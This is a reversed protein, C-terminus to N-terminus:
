IIRPWVGEGVLEKIGGALMVGRLWDRAEEVSKAAIRVVGGTGGEGCLDSFSWALSPPRHLQFQTSKDCIERLYELLKAVHPGYMLVTAYVHYPALKRAIGSMSANTRADTIGMTGARREDPEPTNTKGHGNPASHKRTSTALDDRLIMRERMIRRKGVLVENLSEYSEMQWVEGDGGETAYMRGRGSNVWDLILVSATGEAGQEGNEDPLVFRQAQIYSSDKYPSISDPLVLAFAGPALTVLMRQTTVEKGKGKDKGTDGPGAPKTQGALGAPQRLLRSQPRIGPRNRFVKTSGQTLLILGGRPEVDIQLSILDGAVLGGGYALTYALAVHDPQSPLPTPSLLKLPYTARLTSFRAKLGTTSLTLHGSGPATSEPSPSPSRALATATGRREAAKPDNSTALASTSTGSPGARAHDGLTLAGAMSPHRSLISCTPCSNM